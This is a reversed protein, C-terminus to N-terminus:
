PIRLYMVTNVPFRWWGRDEVLDIWDAGERGIEQLDLTINVEWRRKNNWATQKNPNRCWFRKLVERMRAVHDAWNMRRTKM